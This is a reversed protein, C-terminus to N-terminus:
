KVSIPKIDGEDEPAQFLRVGKHQNEKIYLERETLPRNTNCIGGEERYGLMWEGAPIYFDAREGIDLSAVRKGSIYFGYFCASGLLGSDRVVTLRAGNSLPEQYFFLREKPVLKAKDLSVASTACGTLGVIAMILLLKKM